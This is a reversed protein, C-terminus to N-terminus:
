LWSEEDAENAGSTLDLHGLPANTNNREHLRKPALPHLGMEDPVVSSFDAEILPLL